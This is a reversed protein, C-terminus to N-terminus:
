VVEDIFSESAKVVTLQEDNEEHAQLQQDEGTAISHAESEDGPQEQGQFGHDSVNVDALDVGQEEMMERLRPLSQDLADRVQAHQSSFVVSTQEGQNSVRVQLPGLEPPDLAIEATQVQQSSMWMVRQMVANGWGQKGVTTPVETQWSPMATERYGLLSELRSTAAPNAHQVASELGKVSTQSAENLQKAFEGISDSEGTQILFETKLEPVLPMQSNAQANLLSSSTAATQTTSNNVVAGNVVAGQQGSLNDQGKGQLGSLTEEAMVTETSTKALAAQTAPQNLSTQAKDTNALGMAQAQSSGSTQGQQFTFGASEAEELTVGHNGFFEALIAEADTQEAPLAGIADNIFANASVGSPPVLNGEGPLVKGSFNGALHGTLWQGDGPTQLGSTKAVAPFVVTSAASPLFAAAQQESLIESFAQAQPSNVTNNLGGFLSAITNNGQQAAASQTGSFLFPLSIQGQGASDM